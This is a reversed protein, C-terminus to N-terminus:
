ATSEQLGYYHVRMNEIARCWELAFGEPDELYYTRNPTHVFFIKFSKPEVRLEPSWPIEGKLVMNVSDVYYLHPGTTLLLMRRRAFLGKRKNVFGQKLILNGEVFCDWQNSARQKELRNRIEEPTLDAINSGDATTRTRRPKEVVTSPQAPKERETTTDEDDDDDDDEGIGLGLLRTLQKDDLGPELHDPVRYQSRLEENESTGPLYPYIPPPTQEHLTEFDVGEFFPHARISPYGAGHEDQAGLRQSPELVLLQSVLSRALECFGDPIEYELKLIKQFIMYESRSRFPPLGAVMQYIICGLAWLDSARSTKDTLLEPSVYQATGVFSGRRERRYPQQQQQQQQQQSDDTAPHTVVTEPDKLIKASGFDTILVHMKEDLLINEPKLDRHIIGLGHLYELARLIEASYFKTCEIDFSGVKNIYPLLEGNKAYSLVFYLREVDQFTCFLRVFSHKAGALMNLVEKERKVYETKKEKIIHRKDCVKIAYEKGTHIDKALYVTSFSGEGIAKGFIFDKPTRKHTPPNITTLAPNTTPSVRPALTNPPAVVGNTVDNTPPSMKSVPGEVTVAPQPSVTLAQNAVRIVSNCAVSSDSDADSDKVPSDDPTECEELKEKQPDDEILAAPSDTM